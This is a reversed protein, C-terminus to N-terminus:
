AQFTEVAARLEDRSRVELKGYVNRLHYEVTKPSLYLRAAAERTTLGDALLQAIQLEQSTLLNRTSVDRRRASEGTAKLEAAAHEAWPAAGLQDFAQLAARLQQRAETRRRARRLREGYFLATRAQEFTDPTQRHHDLATEFWGAFGKDDALLGRCRAARALSWPQGKEQARPYYSEAARRADDPRGLRLYVNVLEPAPMLDADGLALEEMLAQCQLLPELAAAIKGAGLELEAMATLTWIRFLVLGLRGTLALAEHSHALCEDVRGERADLWAIGSLAAGLDTSQGTERALRIAEEYRARALPWGDTTAADRGLYHLLTPLAGSPSRDRATEVSREILERGAEAERLFMPVMVAWSLMLPSGPGGSVKEFHRLAIRMHNAGEAGQGVLTAAMGYAAHAYFATAAPEEEGVMELARRGAALMDSHRGFNVCGLAADALMLVAMDRDWAECAAAADVLIRYGEAIAGRRMALHGRLQDIHATLEAASTLRRATELSRVAGESRGALWGAEGALFLRDARREGNEGLRASHEFAAAAAAYASRERARLGAAELAVAAEEDTGQAAAALHWARRDAEEGSTLAGALARHVSRREAPSAANYIASRALPHSFELVDGRVQVLGAATEAEDLAEAQLGLARGARRIMDVDAPQSAAAILLARRAAPSLGTVRRLFTREVTTTLPLPTDLAPPTLGPAAEALEVLALPNGATARLIWELTDPAIREGARGGLLARASDPDLGRVPLEPIGAELLPSEEDERVSVLTAIPDALLRRVAFAIAEASSRDLWHADDVLVLLPAEDAYASLLGLTAAGIVLRDSQMRPGLGLAGRLAAAQHDPLRDLVSLAPQLLENLGAFPIDAEFQVGRAALVRMGTAEETAYGLLTTKGIGAEGKLLLAASAGMRAGALARDIRLREADRGLLM